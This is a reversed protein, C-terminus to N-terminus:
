IRAPAAGWPCTRASPSRASAATRGPSRSWTTRTSATSAGCSAEKDAARAHVGHVDCFFRFTLGSPYMGSRQLGQFTPDHIASDMYLGEFWACIPHFVKNCGGEACCQQVLGGRLKCFMCADTINGIVCNKRYQAIGQEDPNKLARGWSNVPAESDPAQVSVKTIDLATMEVVDQIVTDPSWLACCLHVWRGDTTPKLGGHQLPCLCCMVATKAHYYDFQGPSDNALLQIYQCRDCFFDGEPIKSVGYCTQHLAANCGDCFLIRNGEVSTGDFCCMCVADEHPEPEEEEEAKPRGQVQVQWSAPLAEEETKNFDAAQDRVGRNLATCVQKWVQQRLYLADTADWAIKAASLKGTLAHLNQRERLVRLRQKLADCLLAYAHADTRLARCLSNDDDRPIIVRDTLPVERSEAVPEMTDLAVFLADSPDERMSLASLIVDESDEGPPILNEKAWAASDV